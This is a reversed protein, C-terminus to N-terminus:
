GLDQLIKGVFESMTVNSNFTMVGLKKLQREINAYNQVDKETGVIIACFLIQSNSNKISLKITDRIEKIPEINSGWGLVLDFIIIAVEKDKSEEIMREKRFTFDIMPHPKGRTFIDDGLDIITNKFSKWPNPLKHNKEIPINSYVDGIYKKLVIATEECLSGGSFLGRVYKRNTKKLKNVWFSTSVTIKNRIEFKPNIVKIAKVVAEQMTQAFFINKVEQKKNLGLLNLVYMKRCNKSIYETIKKVVKESPPKSFLIITKTYPDKELYKISELFTIGGVEESLDRSGTGIAQSITYGFNHIMTMIAQLGTGGASIIGIGQKSINNNDFITRINNSFGLGLGNVVATGCDPGMILINKKLASLKLEKEEEISVNDSFIFICLKHGLVSEGQSVFEEIIKKVEYFVFEGPISVLILNTNQPIKDEVILDQKQNSSSKSFTEITDFVKKEDVNKDFCIILDNVSAKEGDSTLMKRERLLSKNADTGMMLTVESSYQKSLVSAIQMLLISDYFCNPKIINKM